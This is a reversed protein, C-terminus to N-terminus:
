FFVGVTLSIYKQQGSVNKDKLLMDTFSNSFRIGGHLLANGALQYDVGAGIILPVRILSVKDDFNNTTFDDGEDDNVLYGTPDLDDIVDPLNGDITARSKILFGPATGFNAWYTMYGIERTRLKLSVPLEVFQNRYTYSLDSVVKNTTDAAFIQDETLRISGNINSMLLEFSVAYNPRFFYDAMIGYSVGMKSGDNLLNRSNAQVWGVNAEGKLGFRFESEQMQAFSIQSVLLGLCLITANKM